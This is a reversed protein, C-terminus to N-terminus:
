KKPEVLLPAQEKGMLYAILDRVQERSLADLQGEPMISLASDKVDTVDDPSLVIRERDTQITVRAPTREAIIGTIVRDDKTRVVSMRFDRAVEAGPDIINALLYDLDARNSGTLDPGITGGQGYLKHCQQCTKSFVLRGNRPDANKLAATTLQAKYKALQKQRSATTERIEGWVDRLRETVKADGLAFMQRAAYASIDRRPVLKKEVAALLALAFDKRSALTGIADVKEEASLSRYVALVRQPTEAHPYAALGRLATRRTAKDALQEHLVPALDPIRKDILAELAAVRESAGGAPDLAVKRLDALAQPDGFVLALVVANARVGADTGKNFRAYVAPWNSPM